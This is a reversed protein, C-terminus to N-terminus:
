VSGFRHVNDIQSPAALRQYRMGRGAGAYELHQRYFRWTAKDRWGVIYVYRQVEGPAQIYDARVTSVGDEGGFTTELAQQTRKKSVKDTGPKQYNFHGARPNAGGTAAFSCGTLGPTFMFEARADLDIVHTADPGWPIYFAKFQHSYRSTSKGPLVMRGVTVDGDHGHDGAGTRTPDDQALYPIWVKFCGAVAPMGGEKLLIANDMLFARPDNRFLKNAGESM